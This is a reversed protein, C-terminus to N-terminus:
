NHCIKLNMPKVQSIRLLSKETLPLSKGARVEFVDALWIQLRCHTIYQAYALVFKKQIVRIRKDSSKRRNQVFYECSWVHFM